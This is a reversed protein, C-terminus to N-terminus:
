LGCRAVVQLDIVNQYSLDLEVSIHHIQLFDPGPVVRM